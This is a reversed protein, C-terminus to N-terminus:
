ECEIEEKEKKERRKERRSKLTRRARNVCYRSTCAKVNETSKHWHNSSTSPMMSSVVVGGHKWGGLEFGAM